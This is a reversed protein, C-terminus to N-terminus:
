KLLAKVENSKGIRNAIQLIWNEAKAAEAINGSEIFMNRVSFLLPLSNGLLVKDNGQILQPLKDSLVDKYYDMNQKDAASQDVQGRGYGLVVTKSAVALLYPQPLANSCVMLRNSNMQVFEKLYKTDITERKPMNFGKKKLNLQYTKSLLHDLSIIEVDSRVNKVYQQILLPYTDNKGHTILVTNKPLSELTLEAYDMLQQNFYKGSYLKNLYNNLAGIDGLIYHYASFSTLVSFDYANLQEAKKLAEIEDFNYPTKLYTYLHFEFSNQDIEALQQVGKNLTEKQENTFTKRTTMRGAKNLTAALEASVTRIQVIRQQEKQSSKTKKLSRTSISEVERVMNNAPANREVETSKEAQAFSLLSLFLSVILLIYKM